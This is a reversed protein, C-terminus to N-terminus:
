RRGAPASAAPQPTTLAATATATGTTDILRSITRARAAVRPDLVAGLAAALSVAGPTGPAHAVGIGLGAVRQAWYHQDYAQPILVQPVGALAAATTTGAGGHHIVAAVRPFLAQQNVEGIALVGPEPRGPALGAWGASLIVRRGAARVASTIVQALGPAMRMSGFGAYVPPDGAELFGTLEAELPRHDPWIWAGTQRAAGAPGPWPALVPDAALWPRGTLIHGRVDGVPSLGASARYRNLAPGLRENFRAGDRDQQFLPCFTVFVYRVGLAEAVSRAAVPLRGAAAVLVDCDATAATLATVQDAVTAAALQRMRELAAAAPAQQASPRPTAAQRPASAPGAQQPGAQQPGAQAGMRGELRPGIPTVPFGLREIWDHLDPPVCLRADHGSERLQSALAVLPQVDGRSGITSLLVRM